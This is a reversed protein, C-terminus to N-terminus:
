RFKNLIGKWVKVEGDDDTQVMYIYQDKITSAIPKYAIADTPPYQYQTVEWWTIGNDESRYFVDNGGGFAYLADDYHLVSLNQLAPLPNENEATVTIYDWTQNSSAEDATVKYWVSANEQVSDTLGACVCVYLSQNTRTPYSVASICREPLKDINNEGCAEWNVLDRTAIIKTGDFAYLYIPDSALISEVPKDSAAAWRVGDESSYITQNGDTAYMKDGFILISNFDISDASSQTAVPSSWTSGDQSVCVSQVGEYDAFVYLQGNYSVLKQNATLLLNNELPTWLLSDANVSYKYIAATYRRNSIGDTAVVLFEMPSSLDLSDSGSTVVYYTDDNNLKAYLTGSYSISPVVRTLDTWSPLSDVSYIRGNIQDINFKISSGGITRTYSSDTGDSATTYLTTTIDGVSFSTIVCQPTEEVDDSSICSAALGTMFGIISVIYIYGRM